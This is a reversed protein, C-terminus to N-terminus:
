KQAHNCSIDGYMFVGVYSTFVKMVAFIDFASFQNISAPCSVMMQAFPSTNPM